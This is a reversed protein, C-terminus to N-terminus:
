AETAMGPVSQGRRDVGTRGPASARGRPGEAAGSGAHEDRDGRIVRPWAFGRGENCLATRSGDVLQRDEWEPTVGWVRRLLVHPGRTSLPREIRPCTKPPRGEAPAPVHHRSPMGFATAGPVPRNAAVGGALPRAQRRETWQWVSLSARSGPAVQQAFRSERDFATGVTVTFQRRCAQVEPRRPPGPSAFRRKSAIALSWGLSLAPLRTRRALAVARPVDARRRGPPIGGGFSRSGQRRAKADRRGATAPGVSLHGGRHERYQARSGLAGTRPAKAARFLQAPQARGLLKPRARDLLPKM